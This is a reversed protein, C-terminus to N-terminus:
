NYYADSAHYFVNVHRKIPDIALYCFNQPHEIPFLPSVASQVSTIQYVTSAVRLKSTQPDKTVAILDKYMLKTAELYPGIDDEYQCLKGGLCLAKFLHFVFEQRDTPSFTTYSPFEPMLLCKRLEDAVLFGEHYEDLCKRITGDHRVVKALTKSFDSGSKAEETTLRDFFSLSTVTHLTKVKEVKTVKGMSGWRDMTGMVKLQPNVNPDNFFDLIFDEIELPGLLWKFMLGQVEKTEFGKFKAEPLYGFKFKPGEKNVGAEEAPRAVASAPPEIVSSSSALEVILPPKPQTPTTSPNLSLKSFPTSTSDPEEDHIETIRM